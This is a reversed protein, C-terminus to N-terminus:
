SKRKDHYHHKVFKERDIITWGDNELEKFRQLVLGPSVTPTGKATNLRSWLLKIGDTAEDADPRRSKVPKFESRQEYIDKTFQLRKKGSITKIATIFCCTGHISYSVRLKLSAPRLASNPNLIERITQTKSM